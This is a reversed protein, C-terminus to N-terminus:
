GVDDYDESDYNVPIEVDDYDESVADQDQSKTEVTTYHPTFTPQQPAPLNSEDEVEVYDSGPELDEYGQDVSEMSKFQDRPPLPPKEIEREKHHVQNNQKKLNTDGYHNPKAQTSYWAARKSICVNIIIFIMVIVLSVLIIALLLATWFYQRLFEM